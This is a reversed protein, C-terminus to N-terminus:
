KEGCERCVCTGSRGDFSVWNDTQTGCFKCTGVRAFPARFVEAPRPKPMQPTAGAVPKQTAPPSFLNSLDSRVSSPTLSAFRAGLMPLTQRMKADRHQQTQAYHAIQEAEGPHLFDGTQPDPCVDALPTELRRGAFLQPPHYLNLNRYTILAATAADLYHLTEGPSFTELLHAVDSDTQTKFERETTTLHIQAPQGPEIKLLPAAFVWIVPVGLHSLKERLRDREDPPMRTDFIWWAFALRPGTEVPRTEVPEVSSPVSVYCDLPRPLGEVLKEVTVRAEGFQAALWEYLAARTELLLPSQKEFPCNALHKHAFHWRKVEGAKVRVPQRCGPCVLEDQRDLQRLASLNAKWQPALILVDEGTQGHQAKLM